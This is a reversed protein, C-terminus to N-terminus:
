RENRVNLEVSYDAIADSVGLGCSGKSPGASDLSTRCADLDIRDDGYERELEPVVSRMADLGGSARALCDRRYPVRAILGAQGESDAFLVPRQGVVNRCLFFTGGAGDGAVAELADGM